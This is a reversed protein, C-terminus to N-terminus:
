GVIELPTRDRDLEGVCRIFESGRHEYDRFMDFSACAPSLLVEGSPQAKRWSAIVAEKLDQALLIESAGQWQRAMKEAGEGILFVTKVKQAILPRLPSFDQNKDRGGAILVVKDAFSKLAVALSDVNTAKSDNIFRVGGIQAIPQLRHDVPRFTRMAHSIASRQLGFLSAVAATACANELNHDGILSVDRRDCLPGKGQWVLADGKVFVDASREDLGFTAWHINKSEMLPELRERLDAHFLAWDNKGQNRYLRLKAFWYESLSAHRDLHDPTFNLFVSIAPHFTHITELQFSSVETVAVQPIQESLIVQALPLGINGCAM